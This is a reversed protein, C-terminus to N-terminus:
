VMEALSAFVIRAKDWDDKPAAEIERKIWDRYDAQALAAHEDFVFATIGV